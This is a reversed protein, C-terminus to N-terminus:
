SKSTIPGVPGGGLIHIHFHFVEQGGDSAHNAILRYGNECLGLTAATKQVAAFFGVLQEAPAHQSFGDFSVYEGKPIVLAHVPAAPVIDHFALAFEDEYIKDCPIEGRLMKAFINNTDYAM